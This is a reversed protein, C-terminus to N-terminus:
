DDANELESLAARAVDRYAEVRDRADMAMATPGVIDRLADALKEVKFTLYENEASLARLTAAVDENHKKTHHQFAKMAAAFLSATKALREVAEPSTDTM